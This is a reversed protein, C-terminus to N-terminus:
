IRFSVTFAPEDGATIGLAIGTEDALRSKHLMPIGIGFLSGILAGAAADTIFHNGSLVRFTGAAVSVVSAGIILPVKWVSDPYMEAFVYSSFGCVAFVGATHGSPFSNMYDDDVPESLYTYPRYRPILGKLIDKVSYTLVMAELFMVGTEIITDIDSGIFTSVPLLLSAAFLIDGASDLGSNYDFISFRDPFFLDDRNQQLGEVPEILMGAAFLVAGAAVVPIDIGISLQFVEESYERTGSSVGQSFINSNVLLLMGALVTVATLRKENM